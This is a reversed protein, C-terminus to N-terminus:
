SQSEDQSIASSDTVTFDHASCVEIAQDLTIFLGQLKATSDLVNLATQYRKETYAKQFLQNRTAIHESLLAKRDGSLEQLLLDRAKKIYYDVTRSPTEGWKKAVFRLIQSRSQRLVLCQYVDNVRQETEAKNSEKAM